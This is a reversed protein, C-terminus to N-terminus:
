KGNLDWNYELYSIEATDSVKERAYRNIYGTLGGRGPFDEVFWEFIKSVEIKDYTLKNRTPDNIFDKALQTLINDLSYVMFARNNLKPCSKAACNIAFHVRGDKFEARLIEHEIQNLSYKEGNIEVFKKDWPDKIDTISKLPYNDCILKVTHVNYVNIWFAFKKGQDFGSPDTRSYTSVCLDLSLDAKFGKYDVVGDNTVYKALLQDWIRAAGENRQEMTEEAAPAAQIEGNSIALLLLALTFYTKM